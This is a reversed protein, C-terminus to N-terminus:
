ERKTLSSNCDTKHQRRSFFKWSKDATNALMDAVVLRVTHEGYGLGKAVYSAAKDTATPSVLSGDIWMKVSEANIGSGADALDATISIGKAADTESVTGTPKTNSVTPATTELSFSSDASAINGAKDAVQVSVKYTVNKELPNLVEYSVQSATAIAPVIQGNLSLVVSSVNIGTGADSYTAKLVPTATNIEGTPEILSIVPAVEEVKFSWSLSFPNGFKDSVEVYVTHDGRTLKQAQYAIGSASANAPVVVGDLKMLASKVDIGIGADSYNAAVAVDVSNITGTPTNGNIVPKTAELRFNSSATAINGAKDVVRVGVVYGVNPKLPETVAFSINAEGVTAAVLEGNLTMSVEKLNVGAGADSFRASLVPMDTNIDGAPLVDTIVPLNEEISFEWSQVQVNGAVDAVSLKAIHKGKAMVTASKYSVSTDTVLADVATEDITLKVSAKDIGTGDGDSFRASIVPMGTNDVATPTTDTVSPAVEELKFTWTKESATGTTDKLSLRVTYVIGAKLPSTPTYSVKSSTVTADTLVAGNLTLVVSRLDIGTEDSYTASITPFATKINDGSPSFDSIVPTDMEQVSFIGRTVTENGAYDTVIVKIEHVGDSALEDKGFTYELTVNRLPGNKEAVVKGDIILKANAIGSGDDIITASVTAAEDSSKVGQPINLITVPGRTDAVLQRVFFSPVSSALGYGQSATAIAGTAVSTADGANIGNILNGLNIQQVFGDTDGNGLIDALFSGQYYGMFPDATTILNLIGLKLFDPVQTAPVAVIGMLTMDTSVSLNDATDGKWVALYAKTLDEYLYVANENHLDIVM